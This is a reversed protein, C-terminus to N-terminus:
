FVRGITRDFVSKEKRAHSADYDKDLLRYSDEYWDSGPFNHGLVAAAKEAEPRVGLSLYAEVLRHLAEPVHTTTQYKDVVTQFRKIAAQFYGRELYYRGIEMEKGALHDQTLDIKLQADRAYKSDPFRHVVQKLNDLALETMKQDRRVDSIQEYYCLARLYYAYDVEPDGPHLQIFRDLALTADDYRLAKYHAYAAMLQARTAWNSYPHEREVEDFLKAAEMNRGEDLARAADQYMTEVPKGDTKAAEEGAKKGGACATLLLVAAISAFHVIKTRM